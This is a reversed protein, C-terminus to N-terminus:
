RKKMFILKKFEWKGPYHIWYKTQPQFEWQQSGLAEKLQDSTVLGEDVLIDGLRKM